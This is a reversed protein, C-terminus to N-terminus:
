QFRSPSYPALDINPRQGSILQSIIRGTKPGGTLGVHDHGFALFAGPGDPVEGIVPISDAISPRHGMWEKSEKWQLGPMAAKINRYLLEIPARSAESELGGFEVVGALRLRGEMPTAVFKGAAVMIPSRPMVSPEWLEVHYGRESELPVKVGLKRALPSSWAGTSVVVTDFPLTEGGARVGCAKGNEIVVDSVEAKILRGGREVVHAALAKVYSGPDSVRGHGSLRAACQIQPGYAPDYQRLADGELLDWEFGHAKRISWGYADSEYHTRDRYVFLYDSPVVWREAGTGASLAQHDSLSDGIINVLAAARRQVAADSSNRLFQVLWPVLRPLYGWKIFLPQNSSFLMGPAKWILGPVSVPVISCSALVGGNGFSAGEGPGAKDILTVDHGDRQLWIAASVGVIGAGIIAVNKRDAKGKSKM